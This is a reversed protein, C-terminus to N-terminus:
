GGRLFKSSPGGKGPTQRRQSVNDAETYWYWRWVVVLIRYFLVNEFLINLFTAAFSEPGSQGSLGCNEFQVGNNQARVM